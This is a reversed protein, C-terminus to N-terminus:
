ESPEIRTIGASVVFKMVEAPSVSLTEVRERPVLYLEGSFNYSHPFYVATLDQLEFEDLSERTIFGLKWLNNEKNFLVKVPVNFKKENGVFASFLDKLSTFLLNLLPIRKIFRSGLNLIPKILTTQGIFGLFTLSLFLVVIGLGPIKMGILPELNNSLWGDVRIFFSTLVYIIIAVPAVLLVGQFFYSGLKKM